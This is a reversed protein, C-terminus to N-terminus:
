FYKQLLGLIGKKKPKFVNKKVEVMDLVKAHRNRKLPKVLTM